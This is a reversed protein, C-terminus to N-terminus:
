VISVISIIMALILLSCDYVSPLVYLLCQQEYSQTCALILQPYGSIQFQCSRIVSSCMHIFVGDKFCYVIDIDTSSLWQYM